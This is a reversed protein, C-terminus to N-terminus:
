LVRLVEADYEGSHMEVGLHACDILRTENEAFLKMEGLLIHMSVVGIQFAGGVDRQNVNMEEIPDESHRDTVTFCTFYVAQTQVAVTHM